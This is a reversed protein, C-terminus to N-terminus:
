YKAGRLEDTLVVCSYMYNGLVGWCAVRTGFQEGSLICVGVFRRMISEGYGKTTTTTTWWLDVGV